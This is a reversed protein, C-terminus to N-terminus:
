THPSSGKKKTSQWVEIAKFANCDHVSLRVSQFFVSVGQVFTWTSSMILKQTTNSVKHKRFVERWCWQRSVVRYQFWHFSIWARFEPSSHTARKLSALTHSFKGVNASNWIHVICHTPCGARLNNKKILFITGDRIWFTDYAWCDLLPIRDNVALSKPHLHKLLKLRVIREPTDQVFTDSTWRYKCEQGDDVAIQGTHRRRVISKPLIYHLGRMMAPEGHHWHDVFNILAVVRLALQYHRWQALTSSSTLRIM